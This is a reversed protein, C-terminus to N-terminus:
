CIPRLPNSGGGGGFGVVVAGVGNEVGTGVEADNGEVGVEVVFFVEPEVFGHHLGVGRALEGPEHGLEGRGFGGAFSHPDHAVHGHAGAVRKVVWGVIKVLDDLPVRGGDGGDEEAVRVFVLEFDGVGVVGGM